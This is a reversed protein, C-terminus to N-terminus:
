APRPLLGPPALLLVGAAVAVLGALVFLATWV